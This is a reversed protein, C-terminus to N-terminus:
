QSTRGPALCRARGTRLSPSLVERRWAARGGICRCRSRRAASGCRSRAGAAGAPWPRRRVRGPRDGTREKRRRVARGNDRGARLRTTNRAGYFDPQERRARSGARIAAKLSAVKRRRLVTPLGWFRCLRKRWPACLPKRNTAPARAPLPSALREKDATTPPGCRSCDRPGRLLFPSFVM